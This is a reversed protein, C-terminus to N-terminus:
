GEGPGPIEAPSTPQTPVPAPVTGANSSGGASAGGSAEDAAGTGTSSTGGSADGATGTGGANPTTVPASSSGAGESGGSGNEGARSIGGSAVDSIEAGKDVGTADTTTALDSVEEGTSAPHEVGDPHGAPVTIGVKALADSVIGQAADPLAGATALGGTALLTAAAVLATVKTRAFRSRVASRGTAPRFGDARRARVTRAVAAVAEEEGSLEDPSAPARAALLLGAVAEYGPPADDPHVAGALLRDATDDDLDHWPKRMEDPIDFPDTM